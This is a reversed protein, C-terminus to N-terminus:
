DKTLEYIFNIQISFGLVNNEKPHSVGSLQYIDAIAGQSLQNVNGRDTMAISPPFM